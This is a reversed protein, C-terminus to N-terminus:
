NMMNMSFVYILISVMLGGCIRLTYNKPPPESLLIRRLRSDSIIDEEDTKGDIKLTRTHTNYHGRSFEIVKRKSNLYLGPIHSELTELERYDIYESIINKTIDTPLNM